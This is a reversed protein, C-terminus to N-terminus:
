KRRGRGRRRAPMRTQKRAARIGAATRAERHRFAQGVEGPIRAAAKRRQQPNDPALPDRTRSRRQVVDRGAGGRISRRTAM